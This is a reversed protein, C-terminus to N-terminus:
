TAMSQLVDSKALSNSHCVKWEGYESLHWKNHERMRALLAEKIGERMEETDLETLPEAENSGALEQLEARSDESLLLEDMRLFTDVLAKEMDGKKYAESAVLEKAQM